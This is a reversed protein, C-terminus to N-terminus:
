LGLAIKFNNQFPKFMLKYSFNGVGTITKVYEFIQNKSTKGRSRCTFAPIFGICRSALTIQLVSCLHSMFILTNQFTVGSLKTSLFLRKPFV